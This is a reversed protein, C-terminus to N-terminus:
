ASFIRAKPSRLKVSVSAKKWLQSTIWAKDLTHGEWKSRSVSSVSLALFIMSESAPITFHLVLFKKMEKKKSDTQQLIEHFSTPVSRDGM